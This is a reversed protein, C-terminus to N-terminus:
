AASVQSFVSRRTTTFYRKFTAGLKKRKGRVKGPKGHDVDHREATRLDNVDVFSQPLKSGLRTGSAERFLFYLNDIAAQYGAYDRAPQELAALGAATKNTAKFLDEGHDRAYEENKQKLIERINSAHEKLM